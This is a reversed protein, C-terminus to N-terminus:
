KAESLQLLKYSFANAVDEECAVYGMANGSYKFTGVLKGEDSLDVIRASFNLLAQMCRGIASIYRGSVSIVYVAKYTTSKSIEINQENENIENSINVAKKAVKNSVVEFGAMFLANEILGELSPNGIKEVSVLSEKKFDRISSNSRKLVKEFRKIEKKTFSQSFAVIPLLM